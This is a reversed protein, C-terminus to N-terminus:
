CIDFLYPYDSIFQSSKGGVNPNKLPMIGHCDTHVFRTRHPLHSLFATSIPQSEVGLPPIMIKTPRIATYGGVYCKEEHSTGKQANPIRSLPGIMVGAAAALFRRL